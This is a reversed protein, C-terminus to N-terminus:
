ATVMMHYEHPRALNVEQALNTNQQEFEDQLMSQYMLDHSEEISLSSPSAEGSNVCFQYTEEVKTDEEEKEDNSDEDRESIM